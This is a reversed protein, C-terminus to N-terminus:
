IELLVHRRGNYRERDYQKEVDVLSLKGLIDKIPVSTIKGNKLAVMRGFSNKLILDVAAIGFYRGMRRDYACPSGGRQLHSLVVSRTEIGTGNTIEKAVWEAIGGLRIHGFSDLTSDSTIQSGGKPKAGEAVAIMQYRQGAKKYERVLDNVRNMDFDYEPILIIDAGSLEGGELALWGATRGMIEIVFARSHSSATTRLRDIEEVVVNVATEFGLTYDTEALDKDITKPIGIVKIGDLSLKAAVSLTDEGGIAVVVDLGNKEINSLVLKSQDKKSNYPNTRSTLLHTGGFRDWPDVTIEDLPIVYEQCEDCNPDAHLLGKWGEKIGFIEFKTNHESEMRPDLASRVVWKIAPNLGACDGGGTLIGIRLKKM